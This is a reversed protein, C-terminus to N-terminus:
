FTNRITRRAVFSNLFPGGIVEDITEVDFPNYKWDIDDDDAIPDFIDKKKILENDTFMRHQFSHQSM